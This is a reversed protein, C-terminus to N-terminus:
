KERAFQWDRARAKPASFLDGMSMFPVREGEAPAPLVRRNGDSFPHSDWLPSEKRQGYLPALDLCERLADIFQANASV